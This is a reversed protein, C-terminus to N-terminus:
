RGGSATASQQAAAPVQCDCVRDRRHLLSAIWDAARSYSNTEVIKSARERLGARFSTDSLMRLMVEAIAEESRTFLEIAGDFEAFLPIKSAAIAAHSSMAIRVAGSAGENNDDYPFIVGDLYGLVAQIEAEDLFSTEILVSDGVGLLDILRRCAELERRSDEAPHLSSLLLLRAGPQRAVVRPWAAILEQYGKHPRLFGFSGIIATGDGSPNLFGMHPEFPHPFLIVREDGLRERERVSHVLVSARESWRQALDIYNGHESSFNDDLVSHLMLAVQIDRDEISALFLDLCIPAFFGTHHQIVIDDGDRPVYSGVIESCFDGWYQWCRSVTVGALTEPIPLTDNEEIIPALVLVEDYGDLKMSGLLAQTYTAIGCVQGFSSVVILRKPPLTSIACRSERSILNAGHRLLQQSVEVWDPFHIKRLKAVRKTYSSSQNAVLDQAACLQECLSRVDPEYWLSGLEAVHSVANTMRSDISFDVGEVLREALATSRPIIAPKGRMHGELVPLGFGEGRSPLVQFDCQDILDVIASDSIDADILEVQPMRDGLREEWAEIQKAVQNHPNPFTKITLHADARGAFATCYAELLVDVGKRPFASSVHLFRVVGEGIPRIPSISQPVDTANLLLGTPKWVGSQELVRCVFRSPALIADYHANFQDVIAYPVRTEEWPFLRLNIKGKLDSSEIPWTHRLVLDPREQGRLDSYGVGVEALEVETAEDRQWGEAATASITVRIGPLTALARALGRNVRALSYSGYYPGEIRVVFQGTM